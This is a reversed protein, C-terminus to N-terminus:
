RLIGRETLQRKIREYEARVRKKGYKRELRRVTFHGTAMSQFHNLFLLNIAAGGVAGALPVMQAAVKESVVVGFRNAIQAILRVLIPAGEEGIGREAVFTIGESVSRALAARIAYYATEASDDSATEGGLAFVELCAFRADMSRL